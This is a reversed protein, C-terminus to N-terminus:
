EIYKKHPKLTYMFLMGLIGCSIIEGIGVTIMFYGISGEFAYVYSLIFPVIITNSLIPPIAALKEKNRLCYTGIAGILTAISGFVVDLPACGTLINSLVCGVTLGPIAASTFVPLITLIESLRVQIVGNALGIVNALYTLIIYLAAIIASKVIFKTNNM